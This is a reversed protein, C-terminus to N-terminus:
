ASQLNVWRSQVRRSVTVGGRRSPLAFYCASSQIQLFMKFRFFCMVCYYDLLIRAQNPCFMLFYISIPRSATRSPRGYSGQATPRGPFALLASSLVAPGFAGAVAFGGFPPVGGGRAALLTTGGTTPPQESLANESELCMTFREVLSATKQIAVPLALCM